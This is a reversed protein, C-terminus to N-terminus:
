FGLARDKQGISYREPGPDCRKKGEKGTTHLSDQGYGVSSTAGANMAELRDRESHPIRKGLIPMLLLSPLRLLSRARSSRLTQHAGQGAGKASTGKLCSLRTFITWTPCVSCKLGARGYRHLQLGAPGTAGGREADDRKWQMDVCLALSKRTSTTHSETYM